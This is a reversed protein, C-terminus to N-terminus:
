TAALTSQKGDAYASFLQANSDLKPTVMLRFGISDMVKIITAFKPEGKKSLSKYLGSRDLNTNKAIASMGKSRAVNGLAMTILKPDGDAFVVNLYEVVAAPTQLYDATDYPTITIKKNM